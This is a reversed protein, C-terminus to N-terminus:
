KFLEGKDEDAFQPVPITLDCVKNFTEITYKALEPAYLEERQHIFFYVDHIGATKWKKIRKAWDDVRTFDTPHLNEGVYRIFTRPVPMQMHLVDRRGSTDTLVWGMNCDHLLNFLKERNEKEFWDKHRVELYLDFDKPLSKLYAELIEFNKPLFNDALQLFSPGLHKGFNSISKLFANTFEEANKLRKIHTIGQYFKPCFLFDRGVKSVWGNIVSDPQLRYFLSNMEIVNFVKAYHELFDKEKTGKEYIKGVWDKRGWKAGGVRINPTKSQTKKANKLIESTSKPDAPISLDISDLLNTDVSGFNM